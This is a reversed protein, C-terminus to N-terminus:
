DVNANWDCKSHKTLEEVLEARVQASLREDLRVRGIVDTADSCSLISAILFELM